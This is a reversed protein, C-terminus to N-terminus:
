GRPPPNRDQPQARERERSRLRRIAPALIEGILTRYDMGAGGAILCLDSWGPTLGPLPNCEIFHVRGKGDLRVDVRAVDRCGLAVFCRRAVRELEKLLLEDVKAPVEYRVREGLELKDDFTYTPHPDNPDNFVIEMPPLVRPKREGLLGLTFERGPLFSEVLAPQRYKDIMERAVERMEAESEVVSKSIVGKSSGEALPKVIAPFGFDKPIRERGTTLAVFDPTNVGAQRVVRKALAKDLALSLSTPDSGTYPIGLLELLAPVQSERSRGQIGEAINFVVDVGSSGLKTAIESDAELEVIEHGFSQIAERIAAITSPADYEAEQDAVGGPQPKTRKLNFALGVTMSGRRTKSRTPRLGQRRAASEIVKELVRDVTDLGALRASDYIGAGPELSPLANVELFYVNGEPTVRYDIRGLDRVGLTRFALLSLKKLRVVLEPPLEAPCRVSVAAYDHQKLTYDYIQYRRGQVAREDFVYETADLVGSVETDALELYPVAVDRGVIFEEILVGSPYRELVQAVKADLQKPDDVVSDQGIGKSSGEFNPKVIVPFRLGETPVPRAESLFVSRPVPVGAAGVVMKTLNKDLTLACVYADSGTHPIGLEDFLAPYFAERFRGRRGEATNFILDPRWAELRAVTRSAPGSVEVPQVVHGLRELASRLAAITEPRDFEAEEESQSLQLNHTLVIRM